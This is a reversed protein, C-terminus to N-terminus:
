QKMNALEADLLRLKERLAAAEADRLKAQLAAMDDDTATAEPAPPPPPPPPPPPEPATYSPAEFTPVAPSEFYMAPPPSPPPSPAGMIMDIPNPISPLGISPLKIDGLIDEVKPAASFYDDALLEATPFVQQKDTCVKPTCSEMPAASVTRVSSVPGVNPVVLASATALILPLARLYLM